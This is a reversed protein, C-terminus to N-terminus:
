VPIGAAVVRLGNALPEIGRSEAWGIAPDVLLVTQMLEGAESAVAHGTNILTGAILVLLAYAFVTKFIFSLVGGRRRRSCRKCKDHSCTACCM